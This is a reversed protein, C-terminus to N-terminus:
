GQRTVGRIFSSLSVIHIFRNLVTSLHDRSLSSSKKTQLRMTPKKNDAAQYCIQTTMKSKDVKIVEGDNPKTGRKNAASDKPKDPKNERKNVAGATTKIRRKMM